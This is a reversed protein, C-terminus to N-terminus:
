FPNNSPRHSRINQIDRRIGVWAGYLEVLDSVACGFPMDLVRFCLGLETFLDEQCTKESGLEAM